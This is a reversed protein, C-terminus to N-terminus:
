MNHVTTEMQAWNCAAGQAQRAGAGAQVSRSNQRDVLVYGIGGGAMFQWLNSAPGRAVKSHAMLTYM